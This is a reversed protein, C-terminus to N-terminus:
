LLPEWTSMTKSGLSCKAIEISMESQWLQSSVPLTKSAHLPNSGPISSFFGVICLVIGGVFSLLNGLVNVTSLNLFGSKYYLFFNITAHLHTSLLQSCFVFPILTPDHFFTRCKIITTTIQTYINRFMWVGKKFCICETTYLFKIIYM